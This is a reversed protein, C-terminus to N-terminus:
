AAVASRSSSRGSPPSSPCRRSCTPASRPPTTPSAPDRRAAAHREGGRLRGPQWRVDLRPRRAGLGDDRRPRRHRRAPPRQRSGQRRVHHRARGRRARVGVDHRHTRHRVAGRRRRPPHRPPRLARAPRGALGAAARHLRRRGPDARRVDAAVDSPDTLQKFLVQEIYDAGTPAASSEGYPDWYPRPLQGAHRCRLRRTSAVQQGDAVPQRAIPRPLWRPLRHRQAPRHPPPRAQPRGRGGRHRLQSLFTRVRDPWRRSAPSGSASTPTPPCTSTARATTCSTTSRPM